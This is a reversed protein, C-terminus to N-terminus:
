HVEAGSGVGKGGYMLRVNLLNIFLEGGELVAIVEEVMQVVSFFFVVVECLLQWSGLLIRLLFSATLLQFSPHFVLSLVDGFIIPLPHDCKDLPVLM